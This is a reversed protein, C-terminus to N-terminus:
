RLAGAGPLAWWEIAGVQGRVQAGLRRLANREAPVLLTGDVLVDSIEQQRLLAVWQAGSADSQASRAAAELGPAYWNVTRGREGLEAMYCRGPDMYLVNGRPGGQARLAEILLREPAYNEYLFRDSGVHRVVQRIAGSHLIWSGNAQFAFNLVCAALLLSVSRRSDAHCAAAVLIPVLVVLAPFVYRVYQLPILPVWVLASCTLAAGRTRRDLLALLWAGGLLVIMFGIGGDFGEMYRGTDFTLHWPLAADFGAHWRPDDFNSAAFYPSRFWGNLLPLVPNRAIIAAYAYSSGGVALALLTSVLTRRIGLRSRARWLAWPLVLLALGAAALKLGLLGGVLVAAALGQGPQADPEGAVLVMLWVLLAATPTETQMTGALSATLPISAYLAVALWANRRTAGLVVALQWVGAATLGIWLANVPGRSEAGALVQPIAQVIDAAWPALAWVHYTPDLAYRGDALLQWPLRLHYAIDDAQVTPLWCGTLALGLALVAFAAARPHEAVSTRWDTRLKEWDAILAHRRWAVLLALAPLYVWRYHIPVPLLWGLVGAMLALGCACKLALSGRPALCGGVAVAAAGLLMTAAVPLPTAFVILALLWISGLASAMSLASFRRLVWAAACALMALALLERFRQPAWQGSVTSQWLGFACLPM